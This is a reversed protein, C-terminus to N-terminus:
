YVFLSSPLAAVAVLPSLCRRKTAHHVCLSLLPDETDSACCACGALQWDAASIRWRTTAVAAAAALEGANVAVFM